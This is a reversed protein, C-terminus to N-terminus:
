AWGDNGILARLRNQDYEAELRQAEAEALAEPEGTLSYPAARRWDALYADTGAAGAKMAARDIAQEFREALQKKAGRRGKGVIVQAPIDRWFVITVEPM